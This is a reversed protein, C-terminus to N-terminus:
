KNMWGPGTNGPEFQPAKPLVWLWGSYTAVANGECQVGPGLPFDANHRVSCALIVASTKLLRILEKRYGSVTLTIDKM